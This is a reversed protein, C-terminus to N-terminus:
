HSCFSIKADKMKNHFDADPKKARAEITIKRLGEWFVFWGAPELIILLFRYSFENLDYLFTAGFMIIIGILCWIFGECKIKKIEEGIQNAHKQFHGKLRKKIANENEYNRKGKSISLKLEFSYKKDLSANKCEQIFDHSLAKEAYPRSDFDSFLDDYNDLKLSIDKDKM